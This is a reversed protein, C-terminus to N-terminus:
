DVRAGAEPMSRAARRREDRERRAIEVNWEVIPREAPSLRLGSPWRGTDLILQMRTITSTLVDPDMAGYRHGSRAM